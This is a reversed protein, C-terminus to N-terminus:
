KKEEKESEKPFWYRCFGYIGLGAVVGKAAYELTFWSKDENLKFVIMKSNLPEPLQLTVASSVERIVLTTLSTLADLNQSISALLTNFLLINNADIFLESFDLIKLNALFHKYNQVLLLQLKNLEDINEIKLIIKLRNKLDLIEEMQLLNDFISSTIIQLEIDTTQAFDCKAKVTKQIDPYLQNYLVSVTVKEFLPNCYANKTSVFINMEKSIRRFNLLTQLDGNILVDLLFEPYCFCLREVLPKQPDNRYSFYKVHRKEVSIHHNLAFISSKAPSFTKKYSSLALYM